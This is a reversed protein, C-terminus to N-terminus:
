GENRRTGRMGGENGRRMGGEDGEEVKWRRGRRM